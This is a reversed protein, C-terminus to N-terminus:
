LAKSTHILLYMVHNAIDSRQTAFQAYDHFSPLSPIGWYCGKAHHQILSLFLIAKHLTLAYPASTEILLM